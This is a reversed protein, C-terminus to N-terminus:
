VEARVRRKGTRAGVGCRLVLLRDGPRGPSGERAFVSGPAQCTRREKLKIKRIGDAGTPGPVARPTKAM